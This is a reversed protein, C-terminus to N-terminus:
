AATPHLTPRSTQITWLGETDMVCRREEGDSARAVVTYPPDPVWPWNELVWERPDQELDKAAATKKFREIVTKSTQSTRDSAPWRVM